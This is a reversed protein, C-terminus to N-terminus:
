NANLIGALEDKNYVFKKPEGPMQKPNQLEVEGRANKTVKFKTPPGAKGGASKSPIDIMKGTKLKKDLEAQTSSIKQTDVESIGESGFPSKLGDVQEELSKIEKEFELYNKM